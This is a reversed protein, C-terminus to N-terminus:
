TRGRHERYKGRAKKATEKVKQPLAKGEAGAEAAQDVSLGEERVFKREEEYLYPRDNKDYQYAEKAIDDWVEVAEDSTLGQTSKPDPPPPAVVSKTFGEGKFIVGQNRYVAHRKAPLGCEHLTIARRDGPFDPIGDAMIQCPLETDDYGAIAEFVHGDSCEFDYRPM